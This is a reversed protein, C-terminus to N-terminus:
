REWLLTIITKCGPATSPLQVLGASQLQRLARLSTPRSIGLAALENPPLTFTRSKCIKHRRYIILALALATRGTTSRAVAQFFGWPCGIHQRDRKAAQAKVSPPDDAHEVEIWTQYKEDWIRDPRSRFQDLKSV